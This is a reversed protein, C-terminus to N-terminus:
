QKVFKVTQFIRDDNGFKLVYVGHGVASLDIITEVSGKLPIINKVIKGDQNTIIIRTDTTAPDHQITLQNQVLTPFAKFVVGSTGANISLVTSFGFKADIDVGRIRYFSQGALPHQDLYSYEEQAKAPLVAIREFSVGNSSREIDYHLLRDEEHVKWTLRMGATEKRSSFGVFRVPTQSNGSYTVTISIYDIFAASASVGNQVQMAIGFGISNVLSPTLPQVSWKDNTAGYKITADSASWTTSSAKNEGSQVGAIILRISKDVIQGPKDARRKITVTIGSVLAFSPVNFGFGTLTLVNSTENSGLDSRLYVGDNLQIASSIGSSAVWNINGAQNSIIASKTLSQSFTFSFCFCLPLLFSIRRM